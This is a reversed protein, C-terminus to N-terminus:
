EEDKSSVSYKSAGTHANGNQSSKLKTANSWQDEDTDLLFPDRIIM